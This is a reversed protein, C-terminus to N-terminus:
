RIRGFRYILGINFGLNNQVTSGFVTGIYTPAVRVGLNPYFNYDFNVGATFVPVVSSNWIGFLNGPIGKSGSDFKGVAIGGTGYASIATKQRAYFRYSPGGTFTYESIQPNAINAFNNSVKANGYAGHVDAIIGLKPNLLYTGNMWFTVENNKQLNQGSRFRLYGGGGAVEYRHSYTAEIERQIRARRNANSERRTRRATQAQATAFSQLLMVLVIMQLPFKAFKCRFM